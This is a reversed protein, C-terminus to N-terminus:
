SAKKKFEVREIGAAYFAELEKLPVAGEERSVEGFRDHELVLTPTAGVDYADAMENAPHDENEEDLEIVKLTVNSHAELFKPVINKKMNLCSACTPQSFFLLTLKDDM